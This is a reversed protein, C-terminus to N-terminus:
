VLNKSRLKGPYVWAAVQARLLTEPTHGVHPWGSDAGLAPGKGTGSTIEQVSPPSGKGSSGCTQVVVGKTLYRSPGTQPRPGRPLPSWHLMGVQEPVM